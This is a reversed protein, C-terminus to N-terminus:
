SPGASAKRDRTTRAKGGATKRQARQRSVKRRRTKNAPDSSEVDDPPTMPLAAGATWDEQLDDEDEAEVEAPLPPPKDPVLRAQVWPTVMCEKLLKACQDAQKIKRTVVPHEQIYGTDSTNYTEPLRKWETDDAHAANLAENAILQHYLGNFRVYQQLAHYLLTVIGVHPPHGRVSTISKVLQDFTLHQLDAETLKIVDSATVKVPRKRPAKVAGIARRTGAPRGANKAGKKPGREGM